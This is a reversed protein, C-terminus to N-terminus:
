HWLPCTEPGCTSAHVILNGRGGEDWLELQALRGPYCAEATRLDDQNFAGYFVPHGDDLEIKRAGSPWREFTEDDFLEGPAPLVM